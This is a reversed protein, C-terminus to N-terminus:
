GFFVEATEYLKPDVLHLARTAEDLSAAVIEDGRLAAMQGWRRDRVLDAAFVGYRTALVRDRATPTGGRQVYGLVTARAPIGTRREIETALYAGVGGLQVHGFEDLEGSRTTDAGPELRAGEAVVVISARKGRRQRALLVEAVKAVDVPREPM